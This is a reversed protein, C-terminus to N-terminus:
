PVPPASALYLGRGSLGPEAYQAELGAAAFAELMEQRTFLRLRHRESLHRVGSADAVLYHFDVLSIKGRQGSHSVRCVLGDATEALVHLVKGPHWQQPEFWPEVIVLGGGNLHARFCRLAQRLARVSRLYGIASFLCAVVDYRADLRFDSMDAQWFRGGSVKSRALDVFGPELDLGDVRYGFEQTLHLAHEGTGCGVDLMTHAGPHRERVLKALAASEARYDKFRSYILDYLEASRSFM